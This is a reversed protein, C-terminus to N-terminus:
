CTGLILSFIKETPESGMFLDLNGVFLGIRSEHRDPWSFFFSQKRNGAIDFGGVRFTRNVNLFFDEIESQIEMIKRNEWQLNNQYFLFLKLGVAEHFFHSVCM